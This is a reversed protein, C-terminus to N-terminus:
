VLKRIGDVAQAGFGDQQIDRIFLAYMRPFKETQQFLELRILERMVVGACFLDFLKQLLDGRFVSCTFPPIM